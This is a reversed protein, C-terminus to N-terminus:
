TQLTGADRVVGGLSSGLATSARLGPKGCNDTPYVTADGDHRFLSMSALM